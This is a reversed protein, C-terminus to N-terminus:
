TNGGQHLLALIGGFTLVSGLGMSAMNLANVLPSAPLFLPLANCILMATLPNFVAAWRPLRTRGRIVVLLLAICMACYIVMFVASIPLILWCTFDLIPQPLVTLSPELGRCLFMLAVCLVHITGGVGATARAGLRIIKEARDNRGEFALIYAAKFGCYQLPIGVGGFLVGCGLQWLSLGGSGVFMGLMGTIDGEIVPYEAWGLPVEGGIVTLLAALLGMLFLHRMYQLRNM